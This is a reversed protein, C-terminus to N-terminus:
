YSDWTLVFVGSIFKLLFIANAKVEQKRERTSVCQGLGKSKSLFFFGRCLSHRLPRIEM